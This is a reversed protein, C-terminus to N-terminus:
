TPRCTSSPSRPSSAGRGGRGRAPSGDATEDDPLDGLAILAVRERALRGPSSRRVRRSPSASRERRAGGRADDVERTPAGRPRSRLSSEVEESASSVVDDALGVGILIGIALAVFVAALSAAHYRGSYGM